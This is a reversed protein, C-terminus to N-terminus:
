SSKVCRISFGNQRPYYLGSCLKGVNYYLSYRYATDYATSSWWFGYTSTLLLTGSLYGGSYSAGFASVNTASGSSTGITGFEANTPLRWGSPCIDSSADTSNSDTCVTGASAACYNYYAGPYSSNTSLTARPETYTSATSNGTALTGGGEINFDSGSFNSLAATVTGMIRLNQTMWCQGNISATTYTSGDRADTLTTGCTTATQMCTARDTCSGPAPEAPINVSTASIYGGNNLTDYMYLHTAYTQSYHGFTAPTIDCRYANVSADWTANFWVWNGYGGSATSTPCQVSQIGTVDWAQIYLRAVYANVEGWWWNTLYPTVNDVYVATMTNSGWTTPINGGPALNGSPSYWYSFSYGSPPTPTATTIAVGSEYYFNQAAPANSGSAADFYVTYIQRNINVYNDKNDTVAYAAVSAGYYRTDGAYSWSYNSGYAISQSDVLSYSGYNGATDQYRAYTNQTYYNITWTAYLTTTNDLTSTTRDVGFNSGANFSTGTCVTGNSSVTGLCWSKFTYGTRTPVISTLAIATTTVSTSSQRAPLGTVSADGTNDGYSVSYAVPNALFSLQLPTSINSYTGATKTYDARVGLGITYSKAQGSGSNASTTEDMTITNTSSPSPFFTTTNNSTISNNSKYSSPIIGWKNNNAKGTANNASFDTLTINSSISDLTNNSVNDKLTTTSSSGTLTLVYGTYNNTSLSFSAQSSSSSSAFTGDTSSVTLDASATLRTSTFTLLCNTGVSSDGTNTCPTTTAMIDEVGTVNYLPIIITLLLLSFLFTSSIGIIRIRRLNKIYNQLNLQNHIGM